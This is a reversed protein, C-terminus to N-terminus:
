TTIPGFNILRWLEIIVHGQLGTKVNLIFEHFPANEHNKPAGVKLIVIISFFGVLEVLKIDKCVFFLNM